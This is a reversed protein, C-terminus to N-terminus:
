GAFLPRWGMQSTCQVALGHGGSCIFLREGGIYFMRGIEGSHQVGCRNEQAGKEEELDLRDQGFQNKGPKASRRSYPDDAQREVLQSIEEAIDVGM